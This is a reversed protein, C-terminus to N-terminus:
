TTPPPEALRDGVQLREGHFLDAASIAKKGPRQVRELLFITGGGCAVALGEGRLALITGPAADAPPAEELPRGALVKLPDGALATASGPWPTMARLHDFIRASPWCWDLTADERKLLPALSVRAEDQAQPSLEGAQLRRLTEVMLAAGVEALRAALEPTTERAGIAVEEQLLIPGSDLGAEMQMTTVGTCPDGAAIAAQVPGAGRYAPLLSAHLNICGHRPLELLAPPFIQGFAVVVGVDPALPRLADLFARRRVREPQMVELGHDRAWVAVPPEQLRRGRGVPRAPQTIVRLPRYGAEMLAALTPVAFSPTGFFLTKLM